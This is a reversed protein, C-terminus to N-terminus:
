KEVTFDEMFTLVDTHMIGGASEPDFKLKTIIKERVRKNLSQLYQKLEDDSFVDFLDTLEDTSLMQFAEIQDNVDLFSLIFAKLKDPMEQFVDFRLQRPLTQYLLELHKKNLHKLVDAVDVPHADVLEYWLRKGEGERAIVNDVNQRVDHLLRKLDMPKEEDIFSFI